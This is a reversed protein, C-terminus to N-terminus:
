STCEQAGAISPAPSPEAKRRQGRARLRTLALRFRSERERRPLNRRFAAARDVEELWQKYVDVMFDQYVDAERSDNEIM